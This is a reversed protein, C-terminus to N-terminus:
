IVKIIIKGRARGSESYKHAEKTESLSFTRDIVAKLKGQEFYPLIKEVDSPKPNNNIIKAKKKSLLSFAIDKIIKKSIDTGIYTGNDTLCKKCKNFDLSNVVDFIVNYKENETTFDTTHYDIMRVKGFSEVLEFNKQSCIATVEAGIIHAFQVAYLGVGGSAGNILVKEGKKLNGLDNLSFYSTMCAIPITSADDYTMTDPIKIAKNENVSIFEATCGSFTAGIVRDGVKFKTISGGIEVVEGACEFGLIKPFKNGTIIKFKGNRVKWDVPNVSTSHVKILLQKSNTFTFFYSIV